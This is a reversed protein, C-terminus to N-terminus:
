ALFGPRVHRANKRACEDAFRIAESFITTKLFRSAFGAAFADGCGTTNVPELPEPEVRKLVPGDTYTITRVGDTLISAIDHKRYLEILKQEVQPQLDPARHAPDYGPFFTEVFETFNPKIVHPKRDLSAILDPGRYDAIVFLGAQRSMRVLDPFLGDSYGPAKSGSIIVARCRRILLSFKRRLRKETSPEVPFGNEVIETVGHNGTEVLTTCFRIDVGTRVTELKLGEQIARKKFFPAFTGGLHTLHIACEGLTHLVRTVNIGKGSIDLFCQSTRNIEGNKLLSFVYTKQLTPNLCLTLFL